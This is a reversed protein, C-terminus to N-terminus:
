ETIDAEKPQTTNEAIVRASEAIRFVVIVIELIVRILLIYLIIIIPALILAGIGELLGFTFAYVVVSIGAVFVLALAVVYIIKILEISVFRTFSLDLLTAFFGKYEDTTMKKNEM